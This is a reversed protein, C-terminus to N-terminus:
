IEETAAAIDLESTTPGDAYIADSPHPPDPPDAPAPQDSPGSAAAM